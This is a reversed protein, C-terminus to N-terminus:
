NKPNDAPLVECTALPFAPDFWILTSVFAKLDLESHFHDQPFQLGQLMLIMSKNDKELQSCIQLIIDQTNKSVPATTNENIASSFTPTKVLWSNFFDKSQKDFIFYGNWSFNYTTGIIKSFDPNLIQNALIGFQSALLADNELHSSPFIQILKLYAQNSAALFLINISVLRPVPLSLDDTEILLFSTQNNNQNKSEITQNQYHSKQLPEKVLLNASLIGIIFFPLFALSFLSFNKKVKCSLPL